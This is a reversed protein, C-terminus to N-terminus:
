GNCSSGVCFEWWLVERRIVSAFSRGRKPSRVNDFWARLLVSGRLGFVRINVCDCCVDLVVHMVGLKELGSRSATALLAWVIEFLCM